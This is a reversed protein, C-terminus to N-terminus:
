IAVALLGAVAAVVGPVVARGAGAEVPVSPEPAGTATGNRGIGQSTALTTAPETVEPHAEEVSSAPAATVEEGDAATTKAGETCGPVAVPATRSTGPPLTMTDTWVKTEGEPCNPIDPRCIVTHPVTYVPMSAITTIAEAPGTITPNATNTESAGDTCTETEVPAASEAGSEEYAGESSSPEEIGAEAPKAVESDAAETAEAAGNLIGLLGPKDSGSAEASTQTASSSSSGAATTTSNSITDDKGCDGETVTVGDSIAM